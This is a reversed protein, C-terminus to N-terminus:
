QLSKPKGPAKAKGPAKEKGAPGGPSPAGAAAVEIELAVTEKEPKCAQEQCM